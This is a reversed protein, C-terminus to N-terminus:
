IYDELVQAKRSLVKFSKKTEEDREIYDRLERLMQDLTKTTNLSGIRRSIDENAKNSIYLTPNRKISLYEWAWKLTEIDAIRQVKSQLDPDLEIFRNSEKNYLHDM